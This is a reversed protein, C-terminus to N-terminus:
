CFRASKKTFQPVKYPLCSDSEIGASRNQIEIKQYQYLAALLADVEFFSESQLCEMAVVKRDTKNPCIAAFLIHPSQM